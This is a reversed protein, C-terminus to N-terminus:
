EGFLVEKLKSTFAHLRFDEAYVRFEHEVGLEAVAKETDIFSEEGEYMAQTFLSLAVSKRHIENLFRRDKLRSIVENKIDAMNDPVGSKEGTLAKITYEIAQETNM